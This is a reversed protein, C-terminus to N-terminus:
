HGEKELLVRANILIWVLAGLLLALTSIGSILPAQFHLLPLFAPHIGLLILFSFVLYLLIGQLTRDHQLSAFGPFLANMLKRLYFTRTQHARVELSKKAQTEFPVGDKKIYIHICQTCYIQSESASKCRPCFTRGCKVCYGAYGRRRRYLHLAV